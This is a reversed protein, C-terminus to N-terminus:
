LLRQEWLTFYADYLNRVIATHDPQIQDQSENGFQAGPFGGVPYHWGSIELSGTFEAIRDTPARRRRHLELANFPHPPYFFRFDYLYIINM